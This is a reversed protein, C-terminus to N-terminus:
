GWSKFDPMASIPGAKALAAIDPVPRAFAADGAFAAEIAAAVRLVLVDGGRPGVIQLGFPFGKEDVGVPLSLAPHGTITVYYALSLWHFYTRTPKGDIEAPYLEQWPRPSTCIAPSILVDHKAFFTQYGRYIQTQRTLANAHDVLSYRLGEEVNAHMNPGCLDPTKRTKELHASLVGAARLVEFAEDAGTVDPHTEEAAAFMPALAAAVKRFARRVISETPAQGFDETFALRLSGLDAPAVPSYLEPKERMKQGHFTYALPDVADDSVMASFMLATDAVNRAMPGLMPLPSWGHGRRSAPITGSSPRFGIVGNFAAPNRLSGGTDSGTALPVMGTALAVASGGSSGAANYAPNFANGTAGWVLNRSNAGLGFEPVNTKGLIVAGKARMNAVMHEDKTPVHDAFIPSGWTTRLGKTEELDKIGMPLGHLPPLPGGKMTAEDAARATAMAADPDMATMANVAHNVAEIRGLCSQLLEVASLKKTGILRRAEVATLDCPETM